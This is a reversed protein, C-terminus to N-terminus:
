VRSLTLPEVGFRESAERAFADHCTMLFVQRTEAIKALAAYMAQRREADWHVLVEDLVLPLREGSQDLHDILAIRLALHVQDRTGRSLPAGLVRREGDAGVVELRRAGAEDEDSMLKTYRGATFATLHEGARKLVDPEHDARWELDAARLLGQLLRLRDHERRAVALQEELDREQDMLEAVGEETEVGKLLQQLQGREELLETREAELEERERARAREAMELDEPALAAAREELETLRGLGARAVKDDLEARSAQVAIFSERADQWLEYAADMGATGGPDVSRADVAGLRARIPALREELGDIRATLEAQEREAAARERADEDVEDAAARAEVLAAAVGARWAGLSVGAREETAEGSVDWGM